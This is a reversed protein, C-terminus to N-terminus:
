IDMVLIERAYDTEIVKPFASFIIVIDICMKGHKHKKRYSQKSGCWKNFYLFVGSDPALLPRVKATMIFCVTFNDHDIEPTRVNQVLKWGGM